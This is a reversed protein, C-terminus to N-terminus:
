VPCEATEYSDRAVDDPANPISLCYAINLWGVLKQALITSEADELVAFEM